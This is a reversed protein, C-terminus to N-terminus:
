SNKNFIGIKYLFIAENKEEETYYYGLHVIKSGDRVVARYKGPLRLNEIRNDTTDGNKHLLSKEPWQGHFLFWAVHHAPLSKNKYNVLLYGNKHKRECRAWDQVIDYDDPTVEAMTKHKASDALKSVQLYIAGSFRNYRYAQLTQPVRLIKPKRKKLM